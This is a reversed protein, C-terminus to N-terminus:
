KKFVNGIPVYSAKILACYFYHDPVFLLLLFCSLGPHPFVTGGRDLWVWSLCALGFSEDKGGSGSIRRRRRRVTGRETIRKKQQRIKPNASRNAFRVCGRSQLDSDCGRSDPREVGANVLSVKTSTAIWARAYGACGVYGPNGGRSRWLSFGSAR